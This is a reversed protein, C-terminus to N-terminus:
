PSKMSCGPTCPSISSLKTITIAKVSETNTIFVLNAVPISGVLMYVTAELQPYKYQEYDKTCPHDPDHGLAKCFTSGYQMWFYMWNVSM